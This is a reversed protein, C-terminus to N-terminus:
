RSFLGWTKRSSVNRSTSKVLPNITKKAFFTHSGQMGTFHDQFVELVSFGNKALIDFVEQMPLAHMEMDDKQHRLYKKASFSYKPMSTPIQFYAIGGPNVKSLIVELMFKQVPPPNHQLVIISYFVDFNEINELEKITNLLQTKINTNGSKAVLAECEKLNGKSVDVGTVTKFTKSLPLTVRGVGCGLEFCTQSKSLKIYNRHAVNEFWRMNKRGSALFAEINENFNAMKFDDSTLVSWFPETDGLRQWGAQIRAFMKELVEPSVNTEINNKGEFHASRLYDHIVEGFHRNRFEDSTLLSTLIEDVSSHSSVKEDVVNENEPNRGLLARYFSTVLETESLNKLM